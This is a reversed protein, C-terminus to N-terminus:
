IEELSNNIEKKVDEILMMLHLKLDLGQKELIQPHGVSATTPYSTESSAL